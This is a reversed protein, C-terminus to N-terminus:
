GYEQETALLTAGILDEAVIEGLAKRGLEIMIVMVIWM